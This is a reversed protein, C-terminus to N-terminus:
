SGGIRITASAPCGATPSVTLRVWPAPASVTVCPNDSSVVCDPHCAVTVEILTDRSVTWMAPGSHTIGGHLAAVARDVRLLGCGYQAVPTRPTATACLLAEISDVSLDPSASRLLAIAGAVHPAAMSTGSKSATGGGPMTSVIGAGPALLLPTKGTSANPLYSSTSARNGAADHSGIAISPPYAAPFHVPASGSNGASGVYAAGGARLQTIAQLVATSVSTGGLSGNVIGLGQQRAWQLAAAQSTTYAGCAGGQVEMVRLPVVVAEPAMGHVQGAVSGSVHTGHGSCASLNDIWINPDGAFSRGDQCAVLPHPGCGSDMVGIRQGQGTYGLAWVVPAGTTTLDWAPASQDVEDGTAVDWREAEVAARISDIRAGTRFTDRRVEPWLRLSDGPIGRVTVYVGQVGVLEGQVLVRGLMASRTASTTDRLTVLWTQAHALAPAMCGSALALLWPLRRALVSRM